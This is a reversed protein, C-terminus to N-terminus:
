RKAFVVLTLMSMSVLVKFGSNEWFHPPKEQVEGKKTEKIALRVMLEEVEREKKESM